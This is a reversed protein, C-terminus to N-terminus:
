KITEVVEGCKLMKTGYYPNKVANEKSLWYAGKGDNAMPCFQYYVASDYKAVKVLDYMKKSLSVFLIRQAKVDATTAIGKADTMVNKMIKMWVKHVDKNLENMKVKSLSASLLKAKAAASVGDTKVLEDKLLFYNSFVANLNKDSLDIKISFDASPVSKLQLKLEKSTNSIVTANANSILFLVVLASLTNKLKRMKLLIKLNYNLQTNM